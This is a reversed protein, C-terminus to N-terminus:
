KWGDRRFWGGIAEGYEAAIGYSLWGGLPGIPIAMAIAMPTGLLSFWIGTVIALLVAPLLVRKQKATISM